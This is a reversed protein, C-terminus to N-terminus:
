RDRADANVARVKFLLGEDDIRERLSRVTAADVREPSRAVEVLVPELDQLMAALARHGTQEATARYLRGSAVLDGATSRADGFGAKAKVPTNMLETLFVETQAFHGDLAAFLARERTHQIEALDTEPAPATNQPEVRASWFRVGAVLALVLAAASAVPVFARWSFRSRPPPLAAQVRAWMIREFGPAPEPVEAGAAIQLTRGIEEWTRRCDDCAGLHADIRERDAPPHEGYFHFILDDDTPHSM